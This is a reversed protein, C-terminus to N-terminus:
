QGRRSGIRGIAIQLLNGAQQMQGNSVEWGVPLNNNNTLKTVGTGTGTSGKKGVAKGKPGKGKPGKGSPTNGGTTSAQLLQSIANGAYGYAAQRHGNYIPQAQQLWNRAEQLNRIAEGLAQINNSGKKPPAKKKVVPKPKAGKKQAAVDPALWAVLCVCGLAISVLRYM